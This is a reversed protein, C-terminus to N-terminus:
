FPRQSFAGQPSGNPVAVHARGHRYCKRGVTVPKTVASWAGCEKDEAPEGCLSLPSLLDASAPRRAELVWRHGTRETEGAEEKRRTALELKAGCISGQSQGNIVCIIRHKGCPLARGDWGQSGVASAGTLPTM